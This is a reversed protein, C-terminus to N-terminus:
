EVEAKLRDAVSDLQTHTHSYTCQVKQSYTHQQQLKTAWSVTQSCMQKSVTQRRNIAVFIPLTPIRTLEHTYVTVTWKAKPWECVQVHCATECRNWQLPMQALLRTFINANPIRKGIKGIEKTKPKAISVSPPFFVRQSYFDYNYNYIICFTGTRSNVRSCGYLNTCTHAYFCMNANVQYPNTIKKPKM